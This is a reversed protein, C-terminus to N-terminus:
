QPLETISYICITYLDILDFNVLKVSEGKNKTLGRVPWIIPDPPELTTGRGVLCPLM